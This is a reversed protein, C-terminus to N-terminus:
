EKIEIWEGKRSTIEKEHGKWAKKIEKKSADPNKIEYQKIWLKKYEKFVAATYDNCDNSFIHYKAGANTTSNPEKSLGNTNGNGFQELQNVTKVAQKTLEEDMGTYLIKYERIESSKDTGTIGNNSGSYQSVKATSSLDGFDVLGHLFWGWHTGFWNAM